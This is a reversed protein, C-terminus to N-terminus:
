EQRGMLRRIRSEVEVAERERKELRLFSAYSQLTPILGFSDNGTESEISQIADKYVLEAVGPNGRRQFVQASDAASRALEPHGPTLMRKRAEKAQEYDAEAKDIEGAAFALDGRTEIIRAALLSGAHIRRNAINLAQDLFAAADPSSQQGSAIRARVRLIEVAPLWNAPLNAQYLEWARSALSLSRSRDGRELYLEAYATLCPVLRLGNGFVAQTEVQAHQLENSASDFRHAALDTAGLALWADGLAIRGAPGLKLATDVARKAQRAAENYRGTALLLRVMRIRAVVTEVYEPGYTESFVGVARRLTDNSQAYQESELEVQGLLSYLAATRPHDEGLALTGTAMHIANQIEDNAKALDSTAASLEGAIRHIQFQTTADGAADTKASALAASADEFRWMTTFLGALDRQSAALRSSQGGQQADALAFSWETLAKQLDGQDLAAQGAAHRDEVPRQGKACLCAAVFVVAGVFVALGSNSRM